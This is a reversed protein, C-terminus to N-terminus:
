LLHGLLHSVELTHSMCASLLSHALTTWADCSEQSTAHQPHAAAALLCQLAPM